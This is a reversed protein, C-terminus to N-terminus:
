LATGGADIDRDTEAVAYKPLVRRMISRAAAVVTLRDHTLLFAFRRDHDLGDDGLDRAILAACYHSGVITITWEGVFREDPHLEAGRVGAAPETDMGVGLAAVFPNVAALRAYRDAVSPTFWASDQFAAQITLPDPMHRAHDELQRTLALLLSKSGVQASSTTLLDSPVSPVATDARAHAGSKVSLIPRASIAGSHQRNGLTPLPAPRGLMWGQGFTAGLATARDLHADTEIGEAVIRAGSSEVYAAVALVVAAQQPSPDSQSLTYDLKIIDPAVFELLALSDPHSGVDDLAILCGSKRARRVTELLEAPNALLSRETLEVVVNLRNAAMGIIERAYVPVIRSSQPEINIFLSVNESMGADLAGTMAACRCAWDVEDIVGCEAASAFVAGPDVSPHGPWRALAEYGVVKGSDLEVIPQYHPRVSRPDALISRVASSTLTEEHEEEDHDPRDTVLFRTQPRLHLM